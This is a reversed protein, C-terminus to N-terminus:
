YSQSSKPGDGKYAYELASAIAIMDAEIVRSWNEVDGLEKLAKNFSELMQLWQVTQKSFRVAHVQLQKAETELKRQNVYAQEVGVNLTDMMRYTLRSSALVAERRLREQKERHAAQRAQHEKFARSLM